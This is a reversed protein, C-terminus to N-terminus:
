FLFKQAVGDDPFESLTVINYRGMTYWVQLKGGMQEAQRRAAEARKPSDKINRTGQDTWKVLSIYRPM